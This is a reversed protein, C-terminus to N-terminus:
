NKGMKKCLIIPYYNKNCPVNEQSIRTWESIMNHCKSSRGLQFTVKIFIDSIFGPFWIINIRIKVLIQLITDIMNGLFIESQSNEIDM